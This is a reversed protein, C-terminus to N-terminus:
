KVVPELGRGLCKRGVLSAPSTDNAFGSGAVGIDIEAVAKVIIMVEVVAVEEINGGDNGLEVLGPEVLVAVVNVQESPEHSKGNAYM